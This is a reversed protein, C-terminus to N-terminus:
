SCVDSEPQPDPIATTSSHIHWSRGDSGNRTAQICCTKPDATNDAVASYNWNRNDAASLCLKLDHNIALIHAQADAGASVYYDNSNDEMRWIREAALILKLNAEAEKDLARERLPYYQSFGLTALIGIIVIVIVLELLTFSKKM